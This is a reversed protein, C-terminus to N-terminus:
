KFLLTQKIEAETFNNKLNRYINEKSSQVEEAPHNKYLNILIKSNLLKLTYDKNLTRSTEISNLYIASKQNEKMVNYIIEEFTDYDIKNFSFYQIALNENANNQSALEEKFFETSLESKQFLLIAKVSAKYDDEISKTANIIKQIQNNTLKIQRSTLLYNIALIFKSKDLSEIDNVAENIIEKENQSLRKDVLNVIQPEMREKAIKAVFDDFNKNSFVENIKNRAELRAENTSSIKVSAIESIADQKASKVQNDIQSSLKIWDERMIKEKQVLDSKMDAVSAELEKKRDKLEQRMEKGDSYVLYGIAVGFFSFLGLSFKFLSILSEYHQKSDNAESM